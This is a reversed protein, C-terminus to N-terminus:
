ETFKAKCYPCARNKILEKYPTAGLFHKCIPNPCVYNERFDEELKKQRMPVRSASRFRIIFFVIIMVGATALLVNRVVPFFISLIVSAMSLGAPLMSLANLRNQGIQMKIKKHQYDEYIAELHKIDFQQQSPLARLITSLDIPFHDKGLEITDTMHLGEKRKCEQGNVYIFNHESIDEVSVTLADDSIIIRCHKRSVTNPVSGPKGIHFAKGNQIIALRPKETGEERGIILDLM